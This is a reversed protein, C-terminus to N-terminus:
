RVLYKRKLKEEEFVRQQPRYQRLFYRFIFVLWVLWIVLLILVTFHTYIMPIREVRAGYWLLLLLGVTFFLHFVRSFLFKKPSGDEARWVLIKAVLGLFVFGIAIYFFMQDSRSLTFPNPGFLYVKDWLKTIDPLFLPM